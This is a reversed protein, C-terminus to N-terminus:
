SGSWLMAFLRFATNQMNAFPATMIASASTRAADQPQAITLSLFALLLRVM